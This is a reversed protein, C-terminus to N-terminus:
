FGTISCGKWAQMTQRSPDASIMGAAYALGDLGLEREFLRKRRISNALRPSGWWSMPEAVGFSEDPSGPDRSRTCGPRLRSRRFGSTVGASGRWCTKREPFVLGYPHGAHGMAMCPLVVLLLEGLGIWNGHLLCLLQAGCYLVHGLLGGLWM